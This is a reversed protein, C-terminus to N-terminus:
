FEVVIMGKHHCFIISIECDIKWKTTLGVWNWNQHILDMPANFYFLIKVAEILISIM